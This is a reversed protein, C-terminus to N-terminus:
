VGLYAQANAIVAAADPGEGHLRAREGRRDRHVAVRCWDGASGRIVTPADDPGLLWPEGNPAKLELRVAGPAALGRLMFAYPLSRLGLRAVHHLRATDLPTVAVADFCDLGHAWTEMLRATTFSGVSMHMPGWPLRKDAPLARLAAALTEVSERFWALVEEPPTQRGGQLHAREYEEAAAPGGAIVQEMTESRGTRACEEALDNGVALHTVSDRVDWGQAPTPTLWQEDTLRALLGDLNQSEAEFDDVIEHM